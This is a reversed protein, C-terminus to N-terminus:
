LPRLFRCSGCSVRFELGLARSGSGQVGFRPAERFRLGLVRAGFGVGQIGITQM